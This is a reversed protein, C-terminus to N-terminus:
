AWKQMLINEDDLIQYVLGIASGTNNEKEKETVFYKIGSNAGETLKFEFQMIFASYEKTTVIDGGNTSDDGRSALVNLTGDKIDWEKEPFKDKNARRWGETTKGNWLLSYKIINFQICRGYYSFYRM